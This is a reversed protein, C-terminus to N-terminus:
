RTEGAHPQEHLEGGASFLILRGDPGGVRSVKVRTAAWALAGTEPEVMPALIEVPNQGRGTAYRTFATHGQGVPMAILDPALGPNIFVPSRVAGVSSAVEVIDGQALHLAAATKPNVEVWSSWMASTMPDPLEQLWPLHAVAGDFFQLSAYPLFKFPYQAADGQYVPEVFTEGAGGNVSGRVPRSSTAPKMPAATKPLEGWWGGQTQAVAWAEAGLRDFSAKLMEDFTAWPLALPTKLKHAVELLVDPTARTQFLAKMVPAAVSAVASISGSEPAADTWSELFSSDPLILDALSSTEDVFSAFSVIFPVKELAERVKWAKPAAFVPNTGDVMLVKTQRRGSLLEAALADLTQVRGEAGQGEGEARSAVFQPTFYIGGPQGVAGLLENLANVALATFLGNTQALPPGGAIAVSPAQDAIELALREIRATNVGTLKEVRDPAYDALGESWGRILAGARGAAAPRLKRAIIVHAIGLALVGETGPTVPVWEDASAGTTTMRSEVQVFSGRIGPRGRRMHGYGASQAVPSNWTGLFDAGFSLVFRTRALDITPLQEVGFSLGNARRLVDDGFLEYAVAQPAGFTALFRDVLVRRHGRHGGIVFALSKRDGPDLADLKAVLDGIAQDWTVMEFGGAGRAGTRRLPQTIRDPHYPIQIAAQGRACLGGQNVPHALNGELKKAVSMRVVGQQGHRVTEVDAQMVRVTLGCGSGCLPCVSPKLEALGPVLDEDPVFRILHNEPSGCSALSATAGTVATLKIFSRRDM